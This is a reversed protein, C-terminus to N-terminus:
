KANLFYGNKLKKKMVIRENFLFFGDNINKFRQIPPLIYWIIKYSHKLKEKYANFGMKNINDINNVDNIYDFGEKAQSLIEDREYKLEELINISTYILKHLNKLTTENLKTCLKKNALTILNNSQNTNNTNTEDKSTEITSKLKKINIANLTKSKSSISVSKTLNIALKENIKIILKDIIDLILDKQNILEEIREKFKYVRNIYESLHTSIDNLGKINCVYKYNFNSIKITQVSDFKGKLDSSIKIAMSIICFKINLAENINSCNGTQITIVDKEDNFVHRIQEIAIIYSKIKAYEEEYKEGLYPINTNIPTHLLLKEKKFELINSSGCGM